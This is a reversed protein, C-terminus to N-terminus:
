CRYLNWLAVLAMVAIWVHVWGLGQSGERHPQDVVRPLTRHPLPARFRLPLDPGLLTQIAARDTPFGLQGLVHAMNAFGARDWPWAAEAVVRLIQRQRESM